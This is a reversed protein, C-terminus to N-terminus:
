IKIELNRIKTKTYNIPPYECHNLFYWWLLQGEAELLSKGFISFDKCISVTISGYESIIHNYKLSNALSTAKLKSTGFHRQKLTRKTQGIYIINSKGKLRPVEKECSLIYLINKSDKAMKSGFVKKFEETEIKEIKEDISSFYKEITNYFNDKDLIMDSGRNKKIYGCDLLYSSKIENSIVKKISIIVQIIGCDRFNGNTLYIHV